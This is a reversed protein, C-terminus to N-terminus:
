PQLILAKSVLSGTNGDPLLWKLRDQSEPATVGRIPQDDQVM